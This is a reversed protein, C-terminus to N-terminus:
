LKLARKNNIKLIYSGENKIFEIVRKSNLKVISVRNIPISLTATSYFGIFKSNQNLFFLELPILDFVEDLIIYNNKLMYKDFIRFDSPHKKILVKKNGNVKLNLDDFQDDLNHLLFPSFIYEFQDFDFKLEISIAEKLKILGKKFLEFEIVLLNYKKYKSIVNDYDDFLIYKFKRNNLVEGRLWWSDYFLHRLGSSGEAVCYIMKNGIDSRMFSILNESIFDGSNVEFFPKNIDTYLPSFEIKINFVRSIIGILWKENVEIPNRWGEKTYRVYYVKINSDLLNSSLLGILPYIGCCYFNKM